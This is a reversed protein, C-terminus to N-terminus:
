VSGALAGGCCCVGWGGSGVSAMSCARPAFWSFTTCALACASRSLFCASSVAASAECFAWLLAAQQVSDALWEGYPPTPMLAPPTVTFEVPEPLGDVVLRFTHLYKNDM